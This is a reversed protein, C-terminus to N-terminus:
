FRLRCEAGLASVGPGCPLEASRREDQGSSPAILLTVLSGVLLVGGGTYLGIALRESDQRRANVAACQEGRTAGPHECSAGNWQEAARERRVHFIAGATGAMAAGAALLGATVHYPGPSAHVSDPSRDAVGPRIGAELVEPVEDSGRRFLANGFRDRVTVSYEVREGAPLPEARRAELQRDLHWHTVAGASGTRFAVDLSAAVAAPDTLELLLHQARRSLHAELKPLEGRATLEGRVELYPARIKPSLSQDLRAEPEVAIVRRFADRAAEEDGLASASLALLTYLRLTDKPDNKGTALADSCAQRTGEFDIELYAAEAAALTGTPETASARGSLSTAFALFGLLALAFRM